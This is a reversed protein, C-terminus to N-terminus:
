NTDFYDNCRSRKFCGFIPALFTAPDISDAIIDARGCLLGEDVGDNIDVLTLFSGKLVPERPPILTPNSAPLTSDGILQVLGLEDALAIAGDASTGIYASPDGSSALRTTTATAESM